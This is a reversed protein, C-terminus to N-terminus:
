IVCIILKDLIFLCRFFILYFLYDCCFIFKVRFIIFCIMKLECVKRKVRKVNNGIRKKVIRLFLILDFFIFSGGDGGFSGRMLFRWWIFLKGWLDSWFRESLCLCNMNMFRLVVGYRIIEVVLVRLFIVLFWLMVMEFWGVLVLM